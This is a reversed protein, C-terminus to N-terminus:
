CCYLRAKMNGNSTRFLSISVLVKSVEDEDLGRLQGNDDGKCILVNGYVTPDDWWQGNMATCKEEDEYQSDADYVIKVDMGNPIIERDAIGINQCDLVQRITEDKRSVNAVKVTNDTKIMVVQM